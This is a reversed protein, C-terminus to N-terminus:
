RTHGAAVASPGNAALMGTGDVSMAAASLAWREVIASVAAFVSSGARVRRERRGEARLSAKAAVECPILM